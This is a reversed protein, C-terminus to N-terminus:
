LELAETQIGASTLNAPTEVKRALYGLGFQGAASTVEGVDDGDHTLRAGRELVGEGLLRVLRKTPAAGRYYTRAVLEQGTYCGKDFSVAIDLLGTMAPQIGPGLEHGMSPWGSRVRLAELDEPSRPAAHQPVAVNPGVIDLGEIGTWPVTAVIPADQTQSASGPGRWAVATWTDGKFRADTRFLMGDLRERVVHGFGAEIDLAVRENGIRTVRTLAEINSKPDLIFSWASGGIRLQEVDQTLQTELYSRADAGEVIVIDREIPTAALPIDDFSDM